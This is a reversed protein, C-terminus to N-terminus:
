RSLPAAEVHVNARRRMPAAGLDSNAGAEGVALIEFTARTWGGQELADAIAGARRQSVDLNAAEDGLAGALGVIRVKAIACGALERQMEAITARAAANLDAEWSEFYIDFGREYCASASAPAAPPAAALAGENASGSACSVLFTAGIVLLAISQM